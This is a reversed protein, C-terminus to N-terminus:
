NLKSKPILLFYLSFFLYFTYAHCQSIKITDNLWENDHITLKHVKIIFEKFVMGVINKLPQYHLYIAKLSMTKENKKLFNNLWFKYCHLTTTRVGAGKGSPPYLVFKM